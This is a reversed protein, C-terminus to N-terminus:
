ETSTRGGPIYTLELPMICRKSGYYSLFPTTIPLTITTLNIDDVQFQTDSLAYITLGYVNNVANIVAQDGIPDGTTFTTFYVQDGTKLNHPSGDATTCTFHTANTYTFQVFQRDIDFQIQELPNGWSLTLKDIQTLPKEFRFVGTDSGSLGLLPTLDVMNGDATAEFIFHWNRGPGICSQAAFEKILLSVRRNSSIFISDQYPIRIKGVRMAVVSKVIGLSNVAGTTISSSNNLFDWSQELRGDSDTLRNRTDLVIMGYRYTATPNFLSQISSPESMGFMRKVDDVRGISAVSKVIDLSGLTAGGLEPDAPRVVRTIPLGNSDVADEHAAMDSDSTGIQLRLMEHIDVTGTKIEKTDSRVPDTYRSAWGDALTRQISVTNHGSWNKVSQSRVYVILSQVEMRNLKRGLRAAIINSILTISPITIIEKRFREDSTSAM